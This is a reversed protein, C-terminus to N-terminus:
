SYLKMYLPLVLDAYRCLVGVDRSSRARERRYRPPGSDRSCRPETEERNPSCEGTELMHRTPYIAGRHSPPAGRGSRVPVILEPSEGFSLLPEICGQCSTSSPSAISLPKRAMM